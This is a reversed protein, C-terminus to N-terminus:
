CKKDVILIIGNIGSYINKHIFIIEISNPNKLVIYRGAPPMVGSGASAFTGTLPPAVPCIPVTLYTPAFDPGDM